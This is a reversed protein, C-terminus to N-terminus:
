ADSCLDLATSKKPNTPLWVCAGHPYLYTFVIMNVAALSINRPGQCTRTTRIARPRPAVAGDPGVRPEVAALTARVVLNTTINTAGGLGGLEPQLTTKKPNEWRWQTRKKHRKAKWRSQADVWTEGERREREVAHTEETEKGGLSATHRSRDRGREEGERRAAKDLGVVNENANSRTNQAMQTRSESAMDNARVDIQNEPASIRDDHCM